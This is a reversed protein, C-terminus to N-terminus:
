RVVEVPGFLNNEENSEKVRCYAPMFEDGDCSDGAAWLYLVPADTAPITVVGAFEFVEGPSLEDPTFPYWADVQGKVRYPVSERKRNPADAYYIAVKFRPANSRGQNMVRTVVGLALAGDEQVKVEGTRVELVVVDPLGETRVRSVDVMPPVIRVDSTPTPTLARATLACEGRAVPKRQTPLFLEAELLHEGPEGFVWSFRLPAGPAVADQVILSGDLFVKVEGARSATIVVEAEQELPVEGGCQGDVSVRIEPQPLRTLLSTPRVVVVRRSPVVSEEGGGQFLLVGLGGLGVLVVLGVLVKVVLPFGGGGSSGASPPTGSLPPPPSLFGLNHRTVAAGNVDGLGERIDLAQRLYTEAVDDEGLCLWRTGLQHLVWAEEARDGLHRAAELGHQLVEQWADWYGGLGLPVDLLHVLRLVDSWRQHATLWKLVVFFAPVHVLLSGYDERHNVAWKLLVLAAREQWSELDRTKSLVAALNPALTYRPSHHRVVGQKELHHLLDAAHPVGAIEGLVEADLPAGQLAALALLLRQEVDSRGAFVATAVARESDAERGRVHALAEELTFVEDSVHGALQIISLPHGKLGAVIERVVEQEGEALPRGLEAEFLAVGVELPLGRVHLKAGAQFLRRESDAIVFTAQPAMNLLIRVDEREWAVDDVLVLAQIGALRAQAESRTLKVSSGGEYFAGVLDQLFDDLSKYRASLYVVGDPFANESIRHSWYELLTSKGVGARGYLNVSEGRRSSVTLVELESERDLFLRPFAPLFRVPRSRPRLLDDPTFGPVAINVVGGYISGLQLINKGVAVQGEVNGEILAEIREPSPSSRSVSSTM